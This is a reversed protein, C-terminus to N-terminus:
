LESLPKAGFLHCAMVPVSSSRNQQCSADNPRSSNTILAPSNLWSIKNVSIFSSSKQFVFCNLGTFRTMICTHWLWDPLPRTSMISTASVHFIYFLFINLILHLESWFKFWLLLQQM